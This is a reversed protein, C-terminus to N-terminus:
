QQWQFSDVKWGGNQQVEGVVFSHAQSTPTMIIGSVQGDPSAFIIRIRQAGGWSKAKQAAADLQADTVRTTSQAAAASTNGHSLDSVFQRAVNRQPATIVWWRWAGVGIGTWSLLSVIGLILGAVAVGRGRVDPRGTVAIGIIGTIIALIGTVFPLCGLLGMVLSAVAAASTRPPRFPLPYPPMQSM